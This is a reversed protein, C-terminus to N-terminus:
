LKVTVVASAILQDVYLADEETFEEFYDEACENITLFEINQAHDLILAEAYEELAEKSNM